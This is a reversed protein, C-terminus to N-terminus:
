KSLKIVAAIQGNCKGGKLDCACVRVITASVVRSREIIFVAFIKMPM